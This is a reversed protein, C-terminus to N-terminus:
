RREKELAEIRRELQPIKEHLDVDIWARLLGRCASAARHHIRCALIWVTLDRLLRKMSAPSEFPEYDLEIPLMSRLKREAESLSPTTREDPKKSPTKSKEKKM